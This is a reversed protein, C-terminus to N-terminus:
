EGKYLSKFARIWERKVIEHGAPTPHVGDLLWYNEPMVKLADDFIKQLPIFLVHCKESIRKTNEGRKGLEEMFANYKVKETISGSLAFPEMMIIKTEPLKEKITEVISNLASFSEECVMGGETGQILRNVDNVGALITVVDPKLDIVDVQLRNLLDCTTHGNIGKNIIEYEGPFNLMLEGTILRVYGFGPTIDPNVSTGSDTISDGFFLIKKMKDGM